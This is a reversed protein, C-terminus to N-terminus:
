FIHTKMGLERKFEDVITRKTCVLWDKTESTGRAPKQVLALAVEAKAGVAAGDARQQVKPKSLPNPPNTPRTDTKSKTTQFMTQTTRGSWFSLHARDQANKQALQSARLSSRILMLIAIKGCERVIM